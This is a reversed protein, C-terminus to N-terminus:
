SEVHVSRIECFAPLAAEYLKGALEESKTPWLNLYFQMPLHPIPTPNWNFREHVVKEDVLWRISTDTWEIAYVHFKKSADFGLDILVPSGRYGYDFRSGETGPNYYVNALLKNTDNGLFEIDIEQRPSNRHLFLGTM